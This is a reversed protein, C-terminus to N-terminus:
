LNKWIITKKMYINLLNQINDPVDDTDCDLFSTDSANLVTRIIDSSQGPAAVSALRQKLKEQM